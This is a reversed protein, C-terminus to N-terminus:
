TTLLHAWSHGESRANACDIEIFRLEHHLAALRRNQRFGEERPRFYRPPKIIEIATGPYRKDGSGKVVFDMVHNRLAPRIELRISGHTLTRGDYSAKWKAAQLIPVLFNVTGFWECHILAEMLYPPVVLNQGRLWHALQQHRKNRPIGSLEFDPPLPKWVLGPALLMSYRELSNPAVNAAVAYLRDNVYKARVEIGFAKVAEYKVRREDLIPRLEDAKKVAVAATPDDFVDFAISDSPNRRNTLLVDVSLSETLKPRIELRLRQNAFATPGDIFWGPAEIFAVVLSLVSPGPCRRLVAIVDPSTEYGGHARLWKEILKEREQSRGSIVAEGGM